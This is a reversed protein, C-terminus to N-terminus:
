TQTAGLTFPNTIRPWKVDLVESQFRASSAVYRAMLSRSNRGSDAAGMGAHLGDVNEPVSWRRWVTLHAANNLPSEGGGSSEREHFSRGGGLVPRERILEM